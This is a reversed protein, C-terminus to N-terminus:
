HATTFQYLRPTSRSTKYDHIYYNTFYLLGQAHTTLRTYRTTPPLLRTISILPLSIEYCCQVLYYTRVVPLLRTIHSTNGWRATRPQDKWEAKHSDLASWCTIWSWMPSLYVSAQWGWRIWTTMSYWQCWDQICQAGGEFFVTYDPLTHETSYCTPATTM